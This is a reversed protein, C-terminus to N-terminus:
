EKDYIYIVNKPANGDQIQLKAKRNENEKQETSKCFFSQKKINWIFYILWDILWDLDSTWFGTKSMNKKNLGNTDPNVLVAQLEWWSVFNVHIDPKSRM